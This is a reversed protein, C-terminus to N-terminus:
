VRPPDVAARLRGHTRAPPLAEALAAALADSDPAQVLARGDSPGLVRVGADRLVAAAARLADDDGTLEALAGFPPYQRTRRRAVEAESVVDPRGAEVARVVEHDPMRTQLLLRTEARPRAALLQAGRTVLWL